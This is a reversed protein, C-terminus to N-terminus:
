ATVNQLLGELVLRGDTNGLAGEAAREPHPMLAFVNKNKNSVGAINLLSGNVNAADTLNGNEDCYKFM